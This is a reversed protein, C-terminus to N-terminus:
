SRSSGGSSPAALITGCVKCTRRELSSFFRSFIGPLQAVIDHVAARELHLCHGCNECYWSFGDLEDPKRRREVVLGVSNAPRQPSHPVESPLLFIEGARIPVDIMRGSQITRLVMEGEIQFFLEPGPDHHFDKRSNPGGVAMVIFEADEFLLKNGVPPKLLHRNQDIWTRLDFPPMIHM